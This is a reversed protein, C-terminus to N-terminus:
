AIYFICLWKVQTVFVNNCAGVPMKSHKSTRYKNSFYIGTNVALASPVLEPKHKTLEPVLGSPISQRCHLM